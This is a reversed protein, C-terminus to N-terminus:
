RALKEYQVSIDLDYDSGSWDPSHSALGRFFANNFKTAIEADPASPDTWYPKIGWTLTDIVGNNYIPYAAAYVDMYSVSDTDLTKAADAEWAVLKALVPFRDKGIRFFHVSDFNTTTNWMSMNTGIASRYLWRYHGGNEPRQGMYLYKVLARFTNPESVDPYFSGSNNAYVYNHASDADAFYTKNPVVPSTVMSSNNVIRGTFITNAVTPNLMYQGLLNCGDIVTNMSTTLSSQLVAGMATRIFSCDGNANIAFGVKSDEFTTQGDVVMTVESESSLTTRIATFARYNLTGDMIVSSDDIFVSHLAVSNARTMTGIFGSINIVADNDPLIINGKFNSIKILSGELNADTVTAGGLDGYDSELYKNKLTIYIDASDCYKLLIVNNTGSLRSWVYNSAFWSTHIETNSITIDGTIKRSSSITCGDLSLSPNGNTWFIVEKGSITRSYEDTDIIWTKRATATVTSAVWSMRVVDAVLTGTGLQVTDEFLYPSEKHIEHCAIATGSTGTKMQFRVSDSIWLDGQISFTNTGDFMYYAPSNNIAPFWADLGERDIYNACAAMQSSFSYVTSQIDDVPFVGFHRVDFHLERSALIWRGAGTVSSPRIVSGGDDSYLSASDYVYLVPSTDGAEYYGYLWLLKAGNVSPVTAPDKARLDDMTAVGDATNATITIANTPDMDDSSYQYAWRSPDYDEGNLAMMDGTGIYKYFYASVDEDVFVQYETRGLIDTFEPNRIPNGDSNRIIVDDTTGKRCFRIKGHLLNGDNDLYSNRNDWNRM